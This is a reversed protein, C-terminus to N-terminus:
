ERFDTRKFELSVRFVTQTYAPQGAPEWVRETPVTFGTVAEDGAKLKRPKPSASAMVRIRPKPQRVEIEYIRGEADPTKLLFFRGHRTQGSLYSPLEFLPPFIWTPHCHKFGRFKCDFEGGADTTLLVMGKEAAESQGGDSLARIMKRDTSGAHPQLLVINKGELGQGNADSLQGHLDYRGVIHSAGPLICGSLLLAVCLTSFRAGLLAIECARRQPLERENVGRKLPTDPPISLLFRKLPKECATSVTSVTEVAKTAYVGRQLPTNILNTSRPRFRGHRIWNPIKM